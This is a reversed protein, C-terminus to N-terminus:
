FISIDIDSRCDGRDLLLIRRWNQERTKRRETADGLHARNVDFAAADLLIHLHQGKGELRALIGSVLDGHVEEEPTVALDFVLVLHGEGVKLRELFEEEHGFSIPEAWEISVPAGMQVAVAAEARDRTVETVVQGHSVARVTVLQGRAEAVLRDVYIPALDRLRIRSVRVISWRWWLFSLGLRPGIVFLGVTIAYLHIWLAALQGEGQGVSWRMDSVDPVGIGSVASAPGLIANVLAQVQEARLFTSQWIARYEYTLGDLYMGGVLSLAFVAAALHLNAKRRARHVPEAVPNWSQSFVRRCDAALGVQSLRDLQGWGQKLRETLWLELGGGGRRWLLRFAEWLFVALNWTLMGLLPFSLINISQEPGLRNAVFGFIAAFLLVAIGSALRALYAGALLRVEPHERVARDILRAARVSLFQDESRSLERSQAETERRRQSFSIWSGERDATEISYALYVNRLRTLNM